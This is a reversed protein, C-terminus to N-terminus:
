FFFVKSLTLYLPSSCFAEHFFPCQARFLLNQKIQYLFLIFKFGSPELVNDIGSTKGQMLCKAPQHSLETTLLGQWMLRTGVSSFQNRLSTKQGRHTSWPMSM